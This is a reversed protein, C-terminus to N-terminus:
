GKVAEVQQKLAANEGRRCASCVSDITFNDGSSRKVVCQDVLFIEGPDCEADLVVDITCGSDVVAGCRNQGDILRGEKDIKFM